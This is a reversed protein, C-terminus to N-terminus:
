NSGGKGNIRLRLSYFKAINNQFCSLRVDKFVNFFIRMVTFCKHEGPCNQLNCPESDINNGLHSCNRGGYRPEPNNCYRKRVM